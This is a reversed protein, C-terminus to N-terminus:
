AARAPARPWPRSVATTSTAAAISCPPTSAPPRPARRRAAQGGRRGAGDAQALAADAETWQVSALTRGADDDILQAFLAATPASCRSGRSARRLRAGERPRPPPAQPAERSALSRDHASVSRGPSTSARTVSARARTPSRRGSSASSRRSRASLRSTTARSSSARRARAGRVRHGGAGQDAGPALLRPGARPRPGQAARPLRRGPDGADQHLRHHRGRGHERGALAHARAPRPARRPRDPPTVLLQGDEQVVEIARNKREELNGRPGNVRM